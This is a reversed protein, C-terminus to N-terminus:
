LGYDARAAAPSIKGEALDHRVQERDRLRPDGFGGAGPTFIAVVSGQDLRAAAKVPGEGPREYVFRAMAGRGGGDLGWPATRVRAGFIYTRCGDHESRMRRHIAM